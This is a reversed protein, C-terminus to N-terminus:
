INIDIKILIINDKCMLKLYYICNQLSNNFYVTMMGNINQFSKM